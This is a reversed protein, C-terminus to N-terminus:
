SIFEEQAKNRQKLDAAAHSGRWSTQLRVLFPLLAGLQFGRDLRVCGLHGIGRQLPELPFKLFAADPVREDVLILACTQEPNAAVQSGTVAEGLSM